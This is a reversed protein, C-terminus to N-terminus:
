GPSRVLRLVEDAIRDAADLRALKRAAARMAEVRESAGLLAGVERALRPGDLESDPVVVAAGGDAMWKANGAQHDATAHPYPVLVSPVGAAALEFVSGGARAVAVDAVALADAFPQVYPELRYHPPSGLEALRARLEEYDRRGSAHLV